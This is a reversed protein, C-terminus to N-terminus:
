AYAIEGYLDFAEADTIKVNYFNGISLPENTTIIVEGDVDPSDYETRGYYEGNEERDIIVKFIKGIKNQNHEFAIDHQIEMIDDLRTQKIEEEINDSLHEFAYTFAEHSYPFAGMKEFKFEKVFTSLENFQEETEGPFGVILTTRIEVDKVKSRIDNLIKKTSTGNHGRRMAKLVDGSIHQIPIDIYKCIKPNRNMEEFLDDPIGVPYAYHLRIWEISDIESISKILNTLTPKEKLDQGYWTLDQAILILEKVGNNALFKAEKILEDSSFSKYDGTIVPISCFSCKRHCGESIKLYAYHKPTSLIREHSLNHKFQGNLAEIIDNADYKGFWANVEPIEKKLDKAFLQTLCGFVGLFSNPNNKNQDAIELITEISEQQADHIFGCTNILTIEFSETQDYVVNYGNAKLQRALHESDVVNKSCGLNIINISKL